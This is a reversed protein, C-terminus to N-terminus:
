VGGDERGAAAEGDDMYPLLSNRIRSLRTWFETRRPQPQRKRVRSQFMVMAFVIQESSVGGGGDTSAHTMMSSSDFVRDVTDQACAMRRKRMVLIGAITCVLEAVYVRAHGCQCLLLM